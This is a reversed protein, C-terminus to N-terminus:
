LLSREEETMDALLWSTLAALKVALMPLEPHRCAEKHLAALIARQRRHEDVLRDAREPGPPSEDRFLPLLVAEEYTLHVEMASRVDGIASAVADPVSTDGDLRAEALAQARGLLERLQVHQAFIGRRATGVDVPHEPASWGVETM